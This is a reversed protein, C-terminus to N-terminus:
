NWKKNSYFLNLRALVHTCTCFLSWSTSGFGSYPQSWQRLLVTKMTVDCLALNWLQPNKALCYFAIKSSKFHLHSFYPEGRAPQRRCLEGDRRIQIRQLPCVTLSSWFMQLKLVFHLVLRVALLARVAPLAVCVVSTRFMQQVVALDWSWNSSNIKWKTKLSLPLSQSCCDSVPTWWRGAPRRGAETLGAAM